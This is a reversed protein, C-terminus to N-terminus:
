RALGERPGIKTVHKGAAHRGAALDSGMVAVLVALPAAVAWMAWRHEAFGGIL